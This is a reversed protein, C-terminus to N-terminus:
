LDIEIKLYFFLMGWQSVLPQTTHHYPFNFFLMGWQSVLPQTTHRYSLYARSKSTPPEFEPKFLHAYITSQPKRHHGTLM